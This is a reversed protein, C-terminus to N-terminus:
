EPGVYVSLFLLCAFLYAVIFSSHQDRYSLFQPPFFGGGHLHTGWPNPPLCPAKERNLPTSDLLCLLHHLSILVANTLYLLRLFGAGENENQQTSLEGSDRRGLPLSCVATTSITLRVPDLAVYSSPIDPLSNGSQTLQPLFAMRVTPPVTAPTPTMLQIFHSFM